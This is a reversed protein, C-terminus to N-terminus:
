QSNVVIKKRSVISFLETTVHRCSEEDPVGAQLLLDTDIRGATATSVARTVEV